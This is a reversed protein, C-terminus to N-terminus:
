SRRNVLDVIFDLVGHKKYTHFEGADFFAGYCVKCSEYHLHPHHIDSMAIMPTHCVPCNVKRVPDMKQGTERDGTDIAESGHIKKLEELESADFWIGGCATCRDVQVSQFTVSEMAADCKPCNM